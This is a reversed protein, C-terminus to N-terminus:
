EPFTENAFLNVSNDVYDITEDEYELGVADIEGVDPIDFEVVNIGEIKGIFRYGPRPKGNRDYPCNSEPTGGYPGQHYKNTGAWKSCNRCLLRRLRERTELRGGLNNNRNGQPRTNPRYGRM